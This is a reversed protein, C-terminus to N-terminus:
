VFAFAISNIVFAGGIPATHLLIEVPNRHGWVVMCSSIIGGTVTYRGALDTLSTSARGVRPSRGCGCACGALRISGPRGAPSACRGYM